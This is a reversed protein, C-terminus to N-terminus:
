CGRLAIATIVGGGIMALGALAVLAALSTQPRPLREAVSAPRRRGPKMPSRAIAIVSRVQALTPRHAPDKALLNFLLLDLAAPIESWISRPMPPAEHIHAAILAAATKAEQFPPCGLILEYALCGLAYVDTRRDVDPGRAQEPSLYMPTGLAVGSQTGETRGEVDAALKALGFDLLKVIPRSENPIRVLVTNAPKLDRHTVGCLHAAELARAMQDLIELAEDFPVRGRGLRADLPEGNLYEMVFFARGDALEGVHDVAV